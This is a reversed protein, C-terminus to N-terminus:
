GDVAQWLEVKSGWDRDHPLGTSQLFVIPLGIAMMAAGTSEAGDAARRYRGTPDLGRLRVRRPGRGGLTHVQYLLVVTQRRDDSM